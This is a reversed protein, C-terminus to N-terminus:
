KRDIGLMTLVGEPLINAPLAGNWKKAAEMLADAFIKRIELERITEAAQRAKAFEEAAKREAEAMEVKRTNRIRQAELEQAAVARDNEAQFKSNIAQQIEKDDYILGEASGLIEVTIGKSKFHDRTEEFCLQFIEDKEEKGTALDRKGFERALVGQVFGRINKDMIEELSTVAKYNKPEGAKQEPERAPFNYLFTAADEPRISCTITVGVAFGISDKSEVGIAENRTTTGSDPSKTWERTVPSRNVVIIKATPIWEYEWLWDLHGTKRKRVSVVIRKQAIQNNRLYEESELKAQEGGELQIVFATENSAIEVIPKVEAAGCGAMYMVSAAAFALVLVKIMTKM